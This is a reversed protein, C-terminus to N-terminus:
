RSASSFHGTSAIGLSARGIRILVAILLLKAKPPMLATRTRWSISAAHARSRRREPAKVTVPVAASALAKRAAVPTDAGVVRDQGQRERHAPERGPRGPRRSPARSPRTRAPGRPGPTRNRAAGARRRFRRGSATPAARPRGPDASGGPISRRRRRRAPPAPQFRHEPEEGELIGPGAGRRSRVRGGLPTSRGACRRATRRRRRRRSRARRPRRCGAGRRRRGRRWPRGPAAASGRGHQDHAAELGVEAIPSGVDDHRPDGALEDPGDEDALADHDPALHDLCRGAHGATTRSTTLRAPAPSMTQM